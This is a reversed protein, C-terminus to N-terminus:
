QRMAALFEERAGAMINVMRNLHVRFDEPRALFIYTDIAIWGSSTIYVRAVRATRTVASAADLAKLRNSAGGIDLFNALVLQFSQPDNEMVAIYFRHGQATFNVDGDSDISPNYGEGRFFSLLLPFFDRGPQIKAAIKCEGMPRM